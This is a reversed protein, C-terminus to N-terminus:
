KNAAKRPADLHDLAELFKRRAPDNNLVGVHDANFGYVKEAAFQVRQELQSQLTITGDSSSGTEYGFFMHFPINRAASGSYLKELFSSGTAVDRWCAVVAPASEVAKRASEVGGYPSDFSIYGKVYHREGGQSYENLASLAVLGGMSHAVVIAQRSRFDEDFVRLVEAFFSGLKQLPGGSPYYMFWPQYRSRDLGEVLYKFDRPTGAVGHVFFVATKNPDFKELSFIFRQTHAFFTRADFMGIEGWEPDFFASDLSNVIYDQKVSRVKVPLDTEARNKLDLTFSPGVFTLGDRVKEKRIKVPAATTSGIMEAPAFWGDGDLDAFFFLDYDGEPLYAQYYFVPPHIVREAVIERSKFKDTVAVVLLPGNYSGKLVVPGSLLYSDEPHIERELKATPGQHFEKEREREKKWFGLYHGASSSCGALFLFVMMVAATR